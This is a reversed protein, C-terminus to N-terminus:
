GRHGINRQLIQRNVEKTEARIRCYGGDRYELWMLYKTGGFRWAPEDTFLRLPQKRQRMGGGPKWTCHQAGGRM